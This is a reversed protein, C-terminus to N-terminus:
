DRVAGKIPDFTVPLGRRVQDRVAEVGKAVLGDPKSEDYDETIDPLRSHARHVAQLGLSVKELAGDVSRLGAQVTKLGLQTPSPLGFLALADDVTKLGGQVVKFGVKAPSPLGSM